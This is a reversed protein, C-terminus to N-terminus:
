YIKSWNKYNFPAVIVSSLKSKWYDVRQEMAIDKKTQPYHPITAMNHEEEATMRPKYGYCNVGFKLAPNEMYGGNVGPRGCDHEHGEIDQLKDYTQQQTPYLAMQGESWGYNCWEGGKEYANEIEKYSALRSGYAKCLAKADGYGYTNGPINFVQKGAIIEPVPATEIAKIRPANINANKIITIMKPVILIFLIVLLIVYLLMTATSTESNNPYISPLSYEDTTFAVMIFIYGLLTFVLITLILPNTLINVSFNYTDSFIDKVDRKIAM